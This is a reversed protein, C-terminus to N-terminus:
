ISLFGGGMGHYHIGNIYECPLLNQPVFIKPLLLPTAPGWFNSRALWRFCPHVDKRKSAGAIGDYWARPARATTAAVSRAAHTMKPCVPSRTTNNVDPMSSILHAATGQLGAWGHRPSTDPRTGTAQRATATEAARAALVYERPPIENREPTAPTRMMQGPSRLLLQAHGGVPIQCGSLENAV